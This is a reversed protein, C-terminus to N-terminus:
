CARCDLIICFHYDHAIPFQSFSLIIKVHSKAVSPRTANLRPAVKYRRFKDSSQQLSSSASSESRPMQLPTKFTTQEPAVQQHNEDRSQERVTKHDSLPDTKEPEGVPVAEQLDLSSNAADVASISSNRIECPKENNEGDAAKTAPRRASLNAVAKIRARRM